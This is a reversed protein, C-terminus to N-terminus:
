PASCPTLSDECPLPGFRQTPHDAATLALAARVDPGSGLVEAHRAAARVVAATADAPNCVVTLTAGADVLRRAAVPITSESAGPTAAGAASPGPSPTRCSTPAQVVVATAGPSALGPEPRDPTAVGAGLLTGAVAALALQLLTM